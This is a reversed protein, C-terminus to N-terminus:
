VRKDLRSCFRPTKQWQALLMTMAQSVGLVFKASVRRQKAPEDNAQRVGHGLKAPHGSM